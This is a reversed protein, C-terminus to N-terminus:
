KRSIKYSLYDYVISIGHRSMALYELCWSPITDGDELLDHLKKADVSTHFLHGKAHLGEEPKEYDLYRGASELGMEEDAAFERILKRLKNLKIRM